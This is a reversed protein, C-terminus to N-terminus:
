SAKEQSVRSAMDSVVEAFESVVEPFVNISNREFKEGEGKRSETIRLYPKGERTEEIDLFYTRGRGKIQKSQKDDNMRKKVGKRIDLPYKYESLKRLGDSLEQAKRVLDDITIFPENDPDSGSESVKGNPMLLFPQM